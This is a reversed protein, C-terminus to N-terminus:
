DTPTWRLVTLPADRYPLEGFPRIEALTHWTQLVLDPADVVGPEGRDEALIATQFGWHLVDGVQVPGTVPQTWRTLAAPAVYPIDRGLRRQGYIILAVCDAGVRADTQHRGDLGVTPNLVFPVGILESAYGVYTDDRRVVLEVANTLDVAEAEAPLDASTPRIRHTGPTRLEPVDSVLISAQGRLAPLEVWTYRLIAACDEGAPCTLPNQYDGPVPTLLYWRPDPAAAELRLPQGERVYLPPAAQAPGSLVLTLLLSPM